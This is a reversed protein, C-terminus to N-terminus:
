KKYIRIVIYDGKLKAQFIEKLIEPLVSWSTVIEIQKQKDVFIRLKEEM